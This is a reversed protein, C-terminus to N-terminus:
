RFRQKMIRQLLIMYFYIDICFQIQLKKRCQSFYINYFVLTFWLVYLKNSLFESVFVRMIHYFHFTDISTKLRSHSFALEILGYRKVWQLLRNREWWNHWLLFFVWFNWHRIDKKVKKSLIANFVVQFDLYRSAWKTLLLIVTNPILYLINIRNREYNKHFITLISSLIRVNYKDISDTVFRISFDAKTHKKQKVVDFVPRFCWFVTFLINGM